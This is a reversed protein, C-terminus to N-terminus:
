AKVKEKQPQWVDLHRYHIKQGDAYLLTPEDDEEYRTHGIFGRTEVWPALWDLFLGWENGYNKINATVALFWRHAIDDLSWLLSPKRDFYYSWGRLMFVWRETEFLPHSPWPLPDPVEKPWDNSAMFTLAQITEDPTDKRLKVGISLETYMGMPRVGDRETMWNPNGSGHVM